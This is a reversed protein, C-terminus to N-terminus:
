DHARVPADASWRGRPLARLRADHRRIRAARRHGRAAARRPQRGQRRRQPRDSSGSIPSGASMVGIAAMARAVAPDHRRRARRRRPHATRGQHALDGNGTGVVAPLGYERAVIAAHSMSGGIDSVAGAIKQFIPAWTPNTIQCVLIDGHRCAGSRRSRSSSARRAKSSAAPPPLAASRTATAGRDASLWADLSERTIGWLM